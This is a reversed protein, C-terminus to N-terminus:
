DAQGRCWQTLVIRRCEVRKPGSLSGNCCVAVILFCFHYIYYLDIYSNTQACKCALNM